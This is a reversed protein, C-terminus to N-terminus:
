QLSLLTGDNFKLYSIILQKTKKLSFEARNRRTLLGGRDTCQLVRQHFVTVEPNTKNPQSGGTLSLTCTQMLMHLNWLRRRQSVSKFYSVDSFIINQTFFIELFVYQKIFVSLM